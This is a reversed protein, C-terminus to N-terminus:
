RIDKKKHYRRMHLLKAIKKFLEEAQFPKPLYDDAGQEIIRKYNEESDYGTVALIKVEYQLEDERIRHCVEFGNVGPLNLDLVILDPFYEQLKLGAAFGDLVIEIHTKLHDVLIEQVLEGVSPEDDIVLIKKRKKDKGIREHIQDLRFGRHILREIRKLQVIIEKKRYLKQGGETYGGVPLLGLSSYYSIRSPLVQAEHALDGPKMLMTDENVM